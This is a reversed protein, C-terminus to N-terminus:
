RANCGGGGGGSVSAKKRGTPTAPSGFGAVGSLVAGDATTTASPTMTGTGGATTLLRGPGVADLDGSEYHEEFVHTGRTGSKVESARRNALTSGGRFGGGVDPTSGSTGVAAPTGSDVLKGQENLIANGGLIKPVPPDYQAKIIINTRVIWGHRTDDYRIDSEVEFTDNSEIGSNSDMIATMEEADVKDLFLSNM